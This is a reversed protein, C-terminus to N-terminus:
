EGIAVVMAIAHSQSHSLSISWTTLGQAEALKAAAGYLHLSPAGSEERQVEIEQFGVDGIGCGLAKAVAEKTAWRAALSEMRKGCDVRERPTYVRQLFREGQRAIVDAVREIEILDIGTTLKM